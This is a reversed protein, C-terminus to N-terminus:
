RARGHDGFVVRVLANGARDALQLLESYTVTGRGRISSPPGRSAANRPPAALLAYLGRFPSPM